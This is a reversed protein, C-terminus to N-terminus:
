MRDFKANSREKLGDFAADTLNTWDYEQHLKFSKTFAESTHKDFDDYSKEVLEVLHDMEPQCVLGEHEGRWPSQIYNSRVGFDGLYDKYQCWEETTIAIGGTALFQFPILGWGEGYSPYILVDHDHFLKIMDETSWKGIKIDVNPLEAASRNRGLEDKWRIRSLQRTKITLTARSRDNGFVARFADFAEQWGKRNAEADVILYKLPRKGRGRKHSSRKKPKWMHDIGHPFVKIPKEVGNDIFIKKCWETTTWVEDISPHNVRNTWGTRFQTSEWPFYLINYVRNGNVKYLHPQMWNLQIQASPSDVEVQYGLTKLSRYIGNIATGYGVETFDIPVASNLSVRM